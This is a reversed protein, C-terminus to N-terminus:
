LFSNETPLGQMRTAQLTPLVTHSPVSDPVSWTKQAIVYLCSQLPDIRDLLYMKLMIWTGRALQTRTANASPETKAYLSLM